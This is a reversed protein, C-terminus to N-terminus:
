ARASPDTDAGHPARKSCGRAGASPQARRRRRDVQQGLRRGGVHGRVGVARPQELVLPQRDPVGLPVAAMVHEAVRQQERRQGGRDPRREDAHQGRHDRDRATRAARARPRATATPPRPRADHSNVAPTSELTAIPRIGNRSPIASATPAPPAAARLRVPPTARRRARRQRAIHALGTAPTNRSSPAARWAARRRGGPAPCARRQSASGSAPRRRDREPQQEGLAPGVAEGRGREPRHEHEGGAADRQERGPRRVSHAPPSSYRPTSDAREDHRRREPLVRQPEAHEGARRHERQRVAPAHRDSASATTPTPSSYRCHSGATRATASACPSGLM